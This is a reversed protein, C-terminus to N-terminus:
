VASDLLQQFSKQYKLREAESLNPYEQSLFISFVHLARNREIVKGARVGSQYDNKPLHSRNFNGDSM